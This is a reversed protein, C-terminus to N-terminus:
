DDDGDDNGSQAMRALIDEPSPVNEDEEFPLTKNDEVRMDVSYMQAPVANPNFVVYIDRGEPGCVKDIGKEFAEEFETWEEDSAKNNPYDVGMRGGAKAIQAFIGQAVTMPADWVKFGTQDSMLVLPFIASQKQKIRKAKKKDEETGSAYLKSVTSCVDCGAGKCDLPGKPLVGWHVLRMKCLEKDGDSDTYRYLRVYFKDGQRNPKWFDGGGGGGGAFRRLMKRANGM